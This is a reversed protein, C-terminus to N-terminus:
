PAHSGLWLTEAMLVLGRRAMNFRAAMRFRAARSLSTVHRALMRMALAAVCTCAWVVKVKEGLTFLPVEPKYSQLSDKAPKRVFQSPASTVSGSPMSSLVFRL